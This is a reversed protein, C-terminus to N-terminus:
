SCATRRGYTKKGTHKFDDDTLLSSINWCIKRVADASLDSQLVTKGQPYGRDAATEAYGKLLALAEPDNEGYAKGYLECLINVRSVSCRRCTSKQEM